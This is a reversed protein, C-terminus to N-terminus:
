EVYLQETIQPGRGIGHLLWELSCHIGMAKIARIVRIAAKETLGGYRPGEWNQFNGQRIGCQEAFLKRPLGTMGRLGLMRKARAERSSKPNDSVVKAKRTQAM